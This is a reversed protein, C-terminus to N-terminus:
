VSCYSLISIFSPCVTFIRDDTRFSLWNSIFISASWFKSWSIIAPKPYGTTGSTFILLSMDRIQPSSRVSDEERVAPAELIRSEVDPTVFVVEVPGKGDRFNPSSFEALQEETFKDRVEQDAVVLRAASVRICHTLPKGSLGYNIFAPFAGISWLGLWIFIFTASNMLDMAVVEKPQIGHSQKFYQGYRLVTEYTEKYTWTQGDCVLFPRNASNPALAQKELVYFFNLRDQKEAARQKLTIKVLANILQYDYFVSWRANLYALLTTVAPVAYKLPVASNNTLRANCTWSKKKLNSVHYLYHRCPSAFAQM